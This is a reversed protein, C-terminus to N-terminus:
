IHRILIYIGKNRLHYDWITQIKRSGRNKIWVVKKKKGSENEMCDEVVDEKHMNELVIIVLALRALFKRMTIEQHHHRLMGVSKHERSFHNGNTQKKEQEVTVNGTLGIM